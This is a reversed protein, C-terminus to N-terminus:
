NPRSAALQRQADMKRQAEMVAVQYDQQAQMADLKEQMADMRATNAASAEIAVDAKADVKAVEATLEAKVGDVMQLSALHAELHDVIKELRERLRHGCYKKMMTNVLRKNTWSSNAKALKGMERLLFVNVERGVPAVFAGDSKRALLFPANPDHKLSGLRINRDVGDIEVKVRSKKAQVADVIKDFVTKPYLPIVVPSTGGLSAMDVQFDMFHEDDQGLDVAVEKLEHRVSMIKFPNTDDTYGMNMFNDYCSKALEYSYVHQNRCMVQQGPGGPNNPNTSEWLMSAAPATATAVPAPRRVPQEVDMPAVPAPSVVNRVPQEVEMPSPSVVNRVRQEVDM